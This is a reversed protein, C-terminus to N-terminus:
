ATELERDRSLIQNIYIKEPTDQESYESWSYYGLNGEVIELYRRHTRGPQDREPPIEVSCIIEPVNGNDDVWVEQSATLITGSTTEYRWSWGKQPSFSLESQCFQWGENFKRRAELSALFPWFNEESAELHHSNSVWRLFQLFQDANDLYYIM